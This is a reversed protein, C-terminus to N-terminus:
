CNYINAWHRKRMDEQASEHHGQWDAFCAHSGLGDGSDSAPKRLQRSGDATGPGISGAHWRAQLEDATFDPDGVRQRERLREIRADLDALEQRRQAARGAAQQARQAVLERMKDATQAVREPSPLNHGRAAVGRM